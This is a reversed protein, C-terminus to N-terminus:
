CASHPKTRTKGKPLGDAADDIQLSGKISKELENVNDACAKALNTAFSAALASIENQTRRVTLM